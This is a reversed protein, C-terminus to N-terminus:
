NLIRPGGDCSGLEEGSEVPAAMLYRNLRGQVKMSLPLDFINAVQYVLEATEVEVGPPLIGGQAIAGELRGVLDSAFPRLTETDVVLRTWSDLGVSRFRRRLRTFSRFIMLVSEFHCYPRFVAMVADADQSARIADRVSESYLQHNFGGERLEIELMMELGRGINDELAQQTLPVMEGNVAMQRVLESHVVDVFARQLKNM